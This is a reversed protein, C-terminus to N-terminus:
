ILISQDSLNFGSTVQYPRGMDAYYDVARSMRASDTELDRKLFVYMMGQMGFGPIENFIAMGNKLVFRGWPRAPAVAEVCDQQTDDALQSM